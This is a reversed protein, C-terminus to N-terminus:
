VFLLRERGVVLVWCVVDVSCCRHRRVSLWDGVRADIEDLV